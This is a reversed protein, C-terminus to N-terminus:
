EIKLNAGDLLKVFIEESGFTESAKHFKDILVAMEDVVAFLKDMLGDDENFEVPVEIDISAAARNALDKDFGLEILNDRLRLRAKFAPFETVEHKNFGEIMKLMQDMMNHYQFM